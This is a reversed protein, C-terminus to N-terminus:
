QTTPNSDVDVVPAFDLDFGCDLLELAMAAAFRATDAVSRSGLARM